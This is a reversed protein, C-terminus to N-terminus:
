ASVAASAACARAYLVAVACSNVRAQMSDSRSTLLVPVRTGLVLGATGAGALWTLEKYLMNGAEIDPVLLIDADGAVRSVIGKQDAADRSIANDFALPGDIDGGRIQQRDAMKSLAAADLTAPMSPNVSETACLVALKPRTVGLARALDIANQAIDAKEQLTPAINVAADTLIFLKPYAAVAMVFAHSIRRDTRLGSERAVVASMFHDTHLSGKMLMSAAGDRALAAAARAALKEDDPTDVIELEGARVGMEALLAAIRRAPGVLVPEIYGADRAQVAAGLSAPCLPYAVATRLRGASLAADRLPEFLRDIAM